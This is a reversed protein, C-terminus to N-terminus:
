FPLFPLCYAPPTLRIRGDAAGYAHPAALHSTEKQGLAASNLPADLRCSDPTCRVHQPRLRSPQGQGISDFFDFISCSGLDRSLRNKAAAAEALRQRVRVFSQPRRRTIRRPGECRRARSAGAASFFKEWGDSFGKEVTDVRLLCRWFRDISCGDHSGLRVFPMRWTRSCGPPRSLPIPRAM